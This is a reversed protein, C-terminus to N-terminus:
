IPACQPLCRWSSKILMGGRPFGNKDAFYLVAEWAHPFPIGLFYLGLWTGALCELLHDEDDPLTSLPASAVRSRQGDVEGVLKANFELLSAVYRSRVGSGLRFQIEEHIDAISRESTFSPLRFLAESLVNRLHVAIGAFSEAGDVPMPVSPTLQNAKM